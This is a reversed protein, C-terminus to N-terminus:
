ELELRERICFPGALTPGLIKKVKIEQTFDSFDCEVLSAANALGSFTAIKKVEGTDVTRDNSTDQFLFM